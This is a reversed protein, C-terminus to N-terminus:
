IKCTSVETLHRKDTDAEVSCVYTVYLYPIMDGSANAIALRYAAFSRASGMLRNLSRFKKIWKDSDVDNEKQRRKERDQEKRAEDEQDRRALEGILSLESLRHVPQCNLGVLIAM